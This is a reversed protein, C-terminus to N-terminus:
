EEVAEEFEVTAEEEAVYAEEETEITYIDSGSGNKKIHSINGTVTTFDALIKVREKDYSEAM